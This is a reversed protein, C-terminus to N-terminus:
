EDEHYMGKYLWISLGVFFVGIVLLVIVSTISWQLLFYTVYILSGISVVCFIATKIAQM